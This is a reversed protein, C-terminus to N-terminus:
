EESKRQRYIQRLKPVLEPASAPYKEKLWAATRRVYDASQTACFRLLDDPHAHAKGAAM